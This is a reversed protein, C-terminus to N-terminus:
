VLVDTDLVQLERMMVHDTMTAEGRRHKRSAVIRHRHAQQPQLMKATALLNQLQRLRPQLLLLTDTRLHLPPQLLLMMLVHGHTLIRITPPLMLQHAPLILTTHQLRPAPALLMQTLQLVTRPGAGVIGHLRERNATLLIGKM